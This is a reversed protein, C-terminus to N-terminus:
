VWRSKRVHMKGHRWKAARKRYYVYLISSSLIYNSKRSDKPLILNLQNLHVMNYCQDIQVRLTIREQMTASSQAFDTVNMQKQIRFLEIATLTALLVIGIQIPSLDLATNDLAISHARRSVKRIYEMSNCFLTCSLDDVTQEPSVASCIYRVWQTPHDAISGTSKSTSYAAFCQRQIPISIFRRREVPFIQKFITEIILAKVLLSEAPSDVWHFTSISKLDEYENLKM